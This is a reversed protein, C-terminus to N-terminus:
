LFGLDSQRREVLKREGNTRSDKIVVFGYMLHDTNKNHTLEWSNETKYPTHVNGRHNQVVGHRLM